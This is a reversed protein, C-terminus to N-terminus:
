PYVYPGPSEHGGVFVWTGSITSEALVGSYFVLGEINSDKAESLASAKIVYKKSGTTEGDYLTVIAASTADYNYVKIYKVKFVRGTPVKHLLVTTGATGQFGKEFYFKPELM